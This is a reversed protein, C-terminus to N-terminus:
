IAASKIFAQALRAHREEASMEKISIEFTHTLYIDIIAEIRKQPDMTKARESFREFAALSQAACALKKAVAIEDTGEQYSLKEALSEAPEQYAEEKRVWFHLLEDKLPLDPHLVDCVAPPPWHGAHDVDKLPPRNPWLIRLGLKELDGHMISPTATQLPMFLDDLLIGSRNDAVKLHTLAQEVLEFDKSTILDRLLAVGYYYYTGARYANFHLLGGVKAWSAYRALGLAPIALRHLVGRSRVIDFHNTPVDVVLLDGHIVNLNTLKHEAAYTRLRLVNETSLDIHTVAKAGLHVWALADRGTGGCELINMAALQEVAINMERLQTRHTEAVLSIGETTVKRYLPHIYKGYLTGTHSTTKPHTQM